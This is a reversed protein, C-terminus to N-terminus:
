RSATYSGSLMWDRLRNSDGVPTMKGNAGLLVITLRRDGIRTQMVLCRGAENIFGTKSVEIQWDPDRVLPNTNRYQLPRHDAFPYLTMEGRSTTSRIFAYRSAAQVMKVMDEATSHNRPDLGTPDVFNTDRMGLAKAKRNMARVFVPTGGRFTTRSLAHAARNDSSILAAMMMQNRPLRAAGIRLRSSSNKLRDRDQEVISIPTSMSVGADLVVMATMLKTVSAIPRAQRTNRAYLRNGRDDVVLASPTQLRLGPPLSDARDSRNGDDLRNLTYSPEYASRYSSVAPSNPNPRYSSDYARSDSDTACAAGGLVIGGVLLAMLM